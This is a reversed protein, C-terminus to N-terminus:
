GDAVDSKSAPDTQPPEPESESELKRIARDLNERAKKLDQLPRGKNKHRWIYKLASGTPFDLGLAQIVDMCEVDLGPATYHSPSLVPDSTTPPADDQYLDVESQHVLDNPTIDDNEDNVIIDGDIWRTANRVTLVTGNSHSSHLQNTVILRDGPKLAKRQKHNM